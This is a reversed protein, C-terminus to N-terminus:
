QDGDAEDKPEVQIGDRAIQVIRDWDERSSEDGLLLNYAAAVELAAERDKRVKGYHDGTQFKHPTDNTKSSWVVRQGDRALAFYVSQRNTGNIYLRIEDSGPKTWIKLSYM